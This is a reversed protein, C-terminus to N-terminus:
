AGSLTRAGSTERVVQELATYVESLPRARQMLDILEAKRVAKRAADLPLADIRNVLLM